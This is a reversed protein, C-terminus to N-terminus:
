KNDLVPRFALANYNFRMTPQLPIRPLNMITSSEKRLVLFNLLPDNDGRSCAAADLARLLVQSRVYTNLPRADWPSVNALPLPKCLHRNVTRVVFIRTANERQAMAYHYSDPWIGDFHYPRVEILSSRLPMFLAHILAAGHTGILTHAAQVIAVDRRLGRQGFTHSICRSARTGVCEPSPKWSRCANLLEDANLLLRAGHKTAGRHVFVVGYADSV